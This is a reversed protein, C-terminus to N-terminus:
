YSYLIPLNRWPSTGSKSSVGISPYMKCSPCLTLGVKPCQESFCFNLVGTCVVGKSNVGWGPPIAIGKRRNMEIQLMFCM